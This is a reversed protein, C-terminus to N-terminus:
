GQVNLRDAELAALEEPTNVNRFLAPWDLFEVPAPRHRQLWRGVNGEGGSLYAALDDYLGVPLLAFVPQWHGADYAVSVTAQAQELGALMRQAYDPPLLPSDCPATLLYPTTATQMAALMGALPGRFPYHVDDCVVRCGFRQYIALNRNASILLEAVQPRLRRVSHVILPEGALPLLGKDRGGMREARGGALIVGTIREMLATQLEKKPSRCASM